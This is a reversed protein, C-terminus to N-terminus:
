FTDWICLLSVSLSRLRLTQPLRYQPPLLNSEETNVPHKSLRCKLNPKGRNETQFMPFVQIKISCIERDDGGGSM